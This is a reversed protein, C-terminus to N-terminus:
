DGGAARGAQSSTRAPYPALPAQVFVVGLDPAKAAPSPPSPKPDDALVFGLGTLGFAVVAMLTKLKRAFMITAVGKVLVVPPSAIAACGTLFDFMM